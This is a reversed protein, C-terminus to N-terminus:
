KSLKFLPKKLVAVVLVAIILNGLMYSGNYVLSYLMSANDGFTMGFIEVTEGVLIKWITVGSIFHVVFRLASALIAGYVLGNKKGKFFGAAGVMGYAVVYDLLISPLGWGIGGSALCDVFGFAFCAPFAWKAGHRWGLVILPVMVFDISGGNGWLAIRFPPFHLLALVTALAIMVASECLARLQESTKKM